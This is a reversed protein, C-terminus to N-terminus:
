TQTSRWIRRETSRRARRRQLVLTVFLRFLDCADDHEYFGGATFERSLLM